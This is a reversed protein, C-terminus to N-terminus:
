RFNEGIKSFINVCLFESHSAKTAPLSPRHSFPKGRVIQTHKGPGAAATRSSRRPPMHRHVAARERQLGLIRNGDDAGPRDTEGGRKRQGIILNGEDHEFGIGAQRGLGLGAGCQDARKLDPLAEARGVSNQGLGHPDVLDAVDLARGVALAIGDLQMEQAVLGPKGEDDVQRLGVHLRRQAVGQGARFVSFDMVPMAEGAERLMGVVHRELEVRRVALLCEIGAKKQGAVASAARHALAEANRDFAARQGLAEREDVQLDVEVDLVRAVKGVEAIEAVGLFPHDEHALRLAPAKEVRYELTLTLEGVVLQALLRHREDATRFVGLQDACIQELDVVADGAFPVVSADNQEAIRRM